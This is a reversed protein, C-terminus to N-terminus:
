CSPCAEKQTRETDYLCTPTDRLAVAVTCTDCLGQEQLATYVTRFALLPTNNQESLHALLIRRAGNQALHVCCRASDPNSLHGGESLIRAKLHAPYPGERLLALDHNAELVLTDCGCLHSLLGRTAYGIDTAYGVAHGAGEIRYGVCAASDHPVHFPTVTVAGGATDCLSFPAEDSFPRLCARIADTDPHASQSLAMACPEYAYVAPAHKKCLMRLAGVHDVHEHTLLVADIQDPSEGITALAEKLARYSRGADILLRLGGVRLFAANGSSGSYLTYLRLSM